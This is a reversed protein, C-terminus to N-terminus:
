CVEVAQYARPVGHYDIITLTVMNAPRVLEVDDGVHLIAALGEHPDTYGLMTGFAVKTLTMCHMLGWNTM